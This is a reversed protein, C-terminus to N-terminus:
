WNTVSGDPREFIPTVRYRDKETIEAALQLPKTDLTVGLGPRRNPYLKGNRFDFCEPLHPQPAPKEGVMEMMVPGSFVGCAHVLAAESIPGTFHPILGVYHTECLAEIKMYESIGGVNPLTMRSYDILQNEILGNVDWKSGFQEGVAIPVKVKQRLEKYVGPNESRILDEAFYPELPEILTSLRVADPPDLRTHYDLAWDGDKGVGERIQVCQEYTRRVIEHSQFPAGKGPDVVSSRYARFGAEMCARASEQVTGKSPFGTSYCEVHDRSMGGLLEYVPVGLAKGKIDWLALDIAGLADLKERGAPYFYGRFMIQWLRDIRSPDEGVIMAACQQVTEPAGGEGIGTLGADTEVTVVHYSQNFIPRSNPNHYFRIRTIKM